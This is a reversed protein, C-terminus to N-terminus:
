SIGFSPCPEHSVNNMVLSKGSPLSSRLLGVSFENMPSLDVQGLLCFACHAVKRMTGKDHAGHSFRVRIEFFVREGM